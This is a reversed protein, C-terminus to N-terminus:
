VTHVDELVSKRMKADRDLKLNANSALAGAISLLEPQKANNGFRRTIERWIVNDKANFGDL